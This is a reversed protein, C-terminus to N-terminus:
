PAPMRREGVLDLVYLKTSSRRDLQCNRDGRGDRLDRLVGVALELRHESANGDADAEAPDGHAM